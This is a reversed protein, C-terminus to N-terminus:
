PILLFLITTSCPQVQFSSLGLVGSRVVSFPLHVLIPLSSALFAPLSAGGGLPLLSAWRGRVSRGLFVSPSERGVAGPAPVGARVSVPPGPVPPFASFAGIGPSASTVTGGM